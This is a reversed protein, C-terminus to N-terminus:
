AYWGWVDVIGREAASCGGPHRERTPTSTSPCEGSLRREQVLDRVPETIPPSICVSYLRPVRTRSCPPLRRLRFVSLVHSTGLLPPGAPLIPPSRLTSTSLPSSLLPHSIPFSSSMCINEHVHTNTNKVVLACPFHLLLRRRDTSTEPRPTSLFLPSSTSLVSLSVLPYTLMTQLRQAPRTSFSVVASPADSFPPAVRSFRM